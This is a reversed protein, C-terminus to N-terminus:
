TLALLVITSDDMATITITLLTGEKSFGLFAGEDNAPISISNSWGLSNMQEDYFGYAEQVTVSAKFSYTKEDFEQGSTAQQMIPIGNWDSVPAGQPDFYGGVDPIASPLAELTEIPVQSALAMLTEAPLASALSEATGAVNQVDSIPKTVFNCALVFIILAFVLLTKSLRSM